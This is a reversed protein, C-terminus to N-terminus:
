TSEESGAPESGAPELEEEKETDSEDDEDEDDFKMLEDKVIPKIELKRSTLDMKFHQGLQGLIDLFTAIERLYQMFYDIPALGIELGPGGQCKYVDLLVFDSDRISAFNGVKVRGLGTKLDSRSLIKYIVKRLEEDTPTCAEKVKDKGKASKKGSKEMSDNEKSTCKSPAFSKKNTTEQSKKRRSFVVPSEGISDNAKSSNTVPVKKPSKVPTEKKETAVKKAKDKASSTTKASSGKSGSNHNRTEEESDEGSESGKVDSESHEAVEDDSGDPVSNLREEAEEKEFEDDSESESEKEVVNPSDETKRQKASSRKAASRGSEQMSTEVSKRKKTTGSEKEALSRNTTSQPAALFDLLKTVIDEKKISKITTKVVGIDLVDCFELLKEKVCKDLREKIKLRQKEENEHWVFGSFQSVNSRVHTAKGRRGFLIVHLTKLIEENKKRSLKYQVKPIDKLATGNGKEIRLERVPEKEITAVLRDVSRRERVPRNIQFATPTTSEGAEREDMDKEAKGKDSPKRSQKGKTGVQAGAVVVEAKVDEELVKVGNDDKKGTEAIGNNNEYEQGKKSRKRSRKGKSVQAGAEQKEVNIKEEVKEDEHKSEEQEKEDHDVAQDKLDNEMSQVGNEDEKGIEAIGDKTADEKGKRSRKRSRKGKTNQVEVEEKEENIKEEVDDKDISDNQEGVQNKEKVDEHKNEEQQKLDHDVAEDKADEVSNVGGEDKMEKDSMVAKKGDDQGKKSHKKSRKGKTSIPAEAEEKEENIKEEVKVDEHKSEEQEKMDHDVVQAKDDEEMSKPNEDKEEIAAIGDEEMSKPNEDKEEIAAIGDEKEKSTKGKRSYQTSTNGKVTETEEMEGIVKENVEDNEKSDNQEDVQDNEKVNENKTEEQEKLDTHVAEAKKEDEEMPKVGDGDKLDTHVAEAKQEDEEMPKVGDGDKMEVEVKGDGEGISSVQGDDKGKKSRKVYTKGKVAEADEEKEESKKEEVEGEGKSVNEEDVLNKESGGENKTEEGERLESDVVEDKKEAEEMPKVGDGDKVDEEGKGSVEGEVRKEESIKEEVKSGDCEENKVEEEGKVDCEAGEAKCEEEVLNVVDEKNGEEQEGKGEVGVEGVDEKETGM